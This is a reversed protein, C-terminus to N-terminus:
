RGTEQTKLWQSVSISEITGADEPYSCKRSKEKVLRLTEYPVSKWQQKHAQYWKPFDDRMEYMPEPLEKVCLAYYADIITRAVMACYDDYSRYTKYIECVKKNRYYTYHRGMQRNKITNSVSGETDCWIYMPAKTVIKGIRNEDCITYATTNFLSDECYPLAPDFWINNDILFQRRYVKAHNFVGNLGQEALLVMGNEGKREVLFPAWLLDVNPAPLVDLIDKLAYVHAFTDDFDCIMIWEADSEKIGRNRATSVGAQAVSLQEVKYPRNEFCEDPLENEEGDNVLIVRFDDFDIGRQLDLMAFFKKGTEWPEHYHTVIIDLM